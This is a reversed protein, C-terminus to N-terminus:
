VKRARYLNLLLVFAVGLAAPIPPAGASLVLLTGLMAAAIFFRWKM